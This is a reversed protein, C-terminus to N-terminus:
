PSAGEDGALAYETRLGDFYAELLTDIPAAPVRECYDCAEDQEADAAIKAALTEDDVCGACVFGEGYDWGQEAQTAWVDGAGM